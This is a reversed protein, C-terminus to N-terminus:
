HRWPSIQLLTVIFINNLIDHLFLCQLVQNHRGNETEKPGCISVQRLNLASSPRSLGCHQM